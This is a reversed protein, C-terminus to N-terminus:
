LSRVEVLVSVAWLMATILLSMCASSSLFNSIWPSLGDEVASWAISFLGAVGGGIVRTGGVAWIVIAGWGVLEVGGIVSETAM